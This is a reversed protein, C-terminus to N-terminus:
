RPRCLTSGSALCADRDAQNYIHAVLSPPVLDHLTCNYEYGGMLGGKAGVFMNAPLHVTLLEGGQPM